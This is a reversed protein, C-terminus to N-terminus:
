YDENKKLIYNSLKNFYITKERLFTNIELDKEWFKVSHM